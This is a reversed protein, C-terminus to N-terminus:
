MHKSQKNDELESSLGGQVIYNQSIVTLRTLEMQIIKTAKLNRNNYLVGTSDKCAWSKPVKVQWSLTQRLTILKIM